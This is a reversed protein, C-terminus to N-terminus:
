YHLGWIAINMINTHNVFSNGIEPSKKTSKYTAKYTFKNSPTRAFILHM